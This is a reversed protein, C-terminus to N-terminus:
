SESSITSHILQRPLETGMAEAPIHKPSQFLVSRSSLVKPTTPQNLLIERNPKDRSMNWCEMYRTGFMSKYLILNKGREQERPADEMHDTGILM